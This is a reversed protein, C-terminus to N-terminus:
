ELYMTILAVKPGHFTVNRQCTGKETKWLNKPKKNWKIFIEEGLKWRKQNIAIIYGAANIADWSRVRLM